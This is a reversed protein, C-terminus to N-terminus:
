RYWGWVADVAWMTAAVVVQRGSSAIGAFPRHRHCHCRPRYHCHPCYRCRRCCMTPLRVRRVWHCRTGPALSDFGPASDVPLLLLLTLSLSSLQHLLLPPEVFFFLLLTSSSFSSSHRRLPLSDSSSPFCHCPPFSSSSVVVVHPFRHRHPSFM